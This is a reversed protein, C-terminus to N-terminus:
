GRVAKTPIRLNENELQDKIVPIVKEVVVTEVSESDLTHIHFHNIIQAGGEEMGLLEPLKDLPAIVEPGGPADGVIAPTPSDVIGGEAFSVPQSAIIAIQAAGLAAVIGALFPGLFPGGLAWAKMVAQATNIITSFIASAKDALAQKKRIESEKKAFEEELEVLKKERETEDTINQM